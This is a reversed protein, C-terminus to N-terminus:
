INENISFQRQIGLLNRETEPLSNIEREINRILNNQEALRNQVNVMASRVNEQLTRRTNEIKSKVDRVAPTNESFNALLRVREAQLESLSVVLASLLPDAIGTISPALLEGLQENGLYTQLTEYYKYVLEAETKEKELDQLRVFVQNGELSLNFIRNEARYRELRNEFFALSDTISSIQEKLFRITSEATRNKEKLERNLYMELLKNLYDEGLRRVPTELSLQLISAQKNIPAVTIADKYKIALSPTDNLQFYLVEGPLAAINELRFKFNGGTIEEGFNYADDFGPLQTARSKYLPDLPNFVSFNNKDIEIKFRRNDLVTVKFRGQVLQPHEWDVSVLIPINGYLQSKLITGDGFYSVNLNLESLSEEALRFSKLIGIENEMNSNGQLLSSADFLDTGLSPKDDSVIVTAEVKYIPMSWRNVMIALLIGIAMSILLFPWHRLLNFLLSKLDIEDDAVPQFSNNNMNTSESSQM